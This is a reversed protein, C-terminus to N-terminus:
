RQVRFGAGRLTLQHPAPEPVTMRLVVRYRGPALRRRPFTIWTLRDAAVAGAASLRRRGKGDVVTAVYRAPATARVAIRWDVHRRRFRGRLHRAWRVALARPVVATTVPIAGVPTTESVAPPPTPPM